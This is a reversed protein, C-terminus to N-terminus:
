GEEGEGEETTEREEEVRTRTEYSGEEQALKEGSHQMIKGEM